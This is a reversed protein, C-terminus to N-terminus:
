TCIMSVPSFGLFLDNSGHHDTLGERLDRFLPFDLSCILNRSRLISRYGPKAHKGRCLDGLVLYVLPNSRYRRKDGIEHDTGGLRM